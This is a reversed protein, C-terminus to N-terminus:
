LLSNQPMIFLLYFTNGNSVDWLNTSFIQINFDSLLTLYDINSGSIQHNSLNIITECSNKTRVIDREM